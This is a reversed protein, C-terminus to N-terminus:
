LAVDYLCKITDKKNTILVVQEPRGSIRHDICYDDAGVVCGCQVVKVGHVTELANHHRHGMIIGDPKTGTMLTLNQVVNSVSDKDGHVIYFLKDGATRLCCISNDIRNNQSIVVSDNNKFKLDLCYLIMEELNEGGLSEEKSPSIRSHNGAVACVTIIEFHNQLETIFEGMYEIVIKLQEIVNENNQLRLAPHIIGSIEDGGLVLHCFRCKHTHQIEKIKDLYTHLRERLITINYNNWWNRVEIGAHLDSLCIIMEDKGQIVPTPKYNLPEISRNLVDEITELFLEKRADERVTKQYDIREDRLKQREKKLALQEDKLLALYKESTLKDFVGAEYYRKAQQYPKRYASENMYELDDVRCEKNILDALEHWSMEIQGNDKARGLRWIFQEENEDPLKHLEIM